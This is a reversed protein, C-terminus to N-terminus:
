LIEVEAPSIVDTNETGACGGGQPLTIRSYRWGPHRITGRFPPKGRVNGVLRIRVPDFDADIEVQTGEAAPLVPELGLTEEIVTRCRHHVERAAAGIQVDDYADIDEKLFDLLRGEKQLLALYATVATEPAMSPGHGTVEGPAPGEKPAEETTTRGAPNPVAGRAPEAPLPRRCLLFLFVGSLIPAGILVPGKWGHLLSPETLVIYGAIAGLLSFTLLIGSRM